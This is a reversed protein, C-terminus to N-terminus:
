VNSRAVIVIENIDGRLTANYWISAEEKVTVRGILDASSAIFANSDIEPTIGEYSEIAM